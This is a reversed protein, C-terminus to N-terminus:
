KSTAGSSGSKGTASSGSGLGSGSESSKGAGSGAGSGPSRETSTGMGSGSAGPTAGSEAGEIDVGLAKATEQDVRGTVQLNEKKQFERLAQQTKPGMIGDAQGPDNGKEKLAEQIEKVKDKSLQQGAMTQGQAGQRQGQAQSEVGSRGSGRESQLESSSGATSRDRQQGGISPDTSRQTEMGSGSKGTGASGSGSSGGVQAWVQPALVAMAGTLVLSSVVKKKM